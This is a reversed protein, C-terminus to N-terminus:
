TRMHDRPLGPSRGIVCSMSDIFRPTRRAPTVLRSGRRRRPPRAACLRDDVRAGAPLPADRCNRGRALMINGAQAPEPM